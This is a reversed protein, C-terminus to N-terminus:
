VRSDTESVIFYADVKGLVHCMIFVQLICLFIDM